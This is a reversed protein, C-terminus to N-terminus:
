GLLPINPNFKNLCSNPIIEIFPRNTLLHIWYYSIIAAKKTTITQLDSSILKVFIFRLNITGKYVKIDNYLTVM